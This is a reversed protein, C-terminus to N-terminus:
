FTNVRYLAAGPGSRTTVFRYKAGSVLAQVVANTDVVWNGPLSSSTRLQFQLGSRFNTVLFDMQVQNGAVVPRGNFTLVPLPTAMTAVRKAPGWELPYQDYVLARVNLAYSGATAPAFSFASGAPVEAVVPQTLEETGTFTLDDIFWGADAQYYYYGGAYHYLFRVLLPRDVFSALSVTRNTFSLEGENSLGAQVYVDQWSTGDDASVQVRAEQTTTAYYLRSQFQLAGGADPLVVRRYTLFQDTALTQALHLAHSGSAVPSNVVVSYGPSTQANFDTLGNEGGEVATWSARRTQRWQHGSAKPVATFTYGNPQGAVPLEPGSVVPVVTDPGTTHPDFVTVTYSFSAPVGGSVNTILVACVVDTGPCPWQWPQTTDAGTPHWVLTNEGYGTQVPELTVAVPVGNSSMAVGANTFNANPYTFSWRAYVVPYPVFGPPPWCVYPERTAPRPNSINALDVVWTANAAWATDTRPIDGTGMEETQPYFLWRRHGAAQNNTGFDEAYGRIAEPGASGLSLNSKGAAEAGDATYCTLTNTPYHSLLNNASMMLAAQQDKANYTENLTIWAPVGAMARFWNIQLVVLDRFAADNTGANCTGLNGTWGMVANEAAQYVTNFFNRVEERSTTNVTFKVPPASMSGAISNPKPVTGAPITPPEGLDWGAAQLAGPVILLGLIARSLFQLGRM